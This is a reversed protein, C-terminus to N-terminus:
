KRVSDFSEDKLEYVGEEGGISITTVNGDSFELTMVPYFSNEDHISRSSVYFTKGSLEDINNCASLLFVSM